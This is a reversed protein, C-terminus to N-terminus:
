SLNDNEGVVRNRGQRKAQYLMQDARQLLSVDDDEAQIMAVGLSITITGLKKKESGSTLAKESVKTRLREAIEKAQSYETDPLLCVFEEGGFRALTGGEGIQKDMINAVFTLVKDGVMHGHTDNFKKFYDIDIIIISFKNQTDIFRSCLEALKEDFARRNAIGTLPDKMVVNNLKEMHGRLEKVEDSMSSLSDEMARNSEKMKNSEELICNVLDSLSDLSPNQKLERDCHELTKSFQSNSEDANKINNLLNTVLQETQQQIQDIMKVPRDAVYKTYLDHNIKASFSVGKNLLDDIAENLELITGMAYEYWVTYNEPIPPINLKKMRTLTVKLGQAAQILRQQENSSIVEM